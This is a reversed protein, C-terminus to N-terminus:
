TARSGRGTIIGAHANRAEEEVGSPQQGGANRKNPITLLTMTLCSGGGGFFFGVFFVFCSARSVDSAKEEAQKRPRGRGRKETAEKEKSSVTGKDSM